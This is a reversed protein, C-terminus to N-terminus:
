GGVPVYSYNHNGLVVGLFLVGFSALVIFFSLIFSLRRRADLDALDAESGGALVRDSLRRIQRGVGFIHYALLALLVLFVTMKATFILGYRHDMMSERIVDPTVAYLQYFGTVVLAVLAIAALRGYRGTIVHTVDRKLREDDILWTAPIVALFLVIQPGVLIAAATVHVILSITEV